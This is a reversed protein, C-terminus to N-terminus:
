TSHPASLLPRALTGRLSAKLSKTVDSNDLVAIQCMLRLLAPPELMRAPGKGAGAGSAAAEGRAQQDAAAAVAAAM